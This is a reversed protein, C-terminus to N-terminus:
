PVVSTTELDHKSICWSLGRYQVSSPNDCVELPINSSFNVVLNVNVLITRTTYQRWCLRFPNLLSQESHLGVLLM